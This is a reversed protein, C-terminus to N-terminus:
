GHMMGFSESFRTFLLQVIVLAVNGCWGDWCRRVTSASVEGVARVVPSCWTERKREHRHEALRVLHWHGWHPMFVFFNFSEPVTGPSPIGARSCIDPDADLLRLVSM